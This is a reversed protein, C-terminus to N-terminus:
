PKQLNLSALADSLRKCELLLTEVKKVDKEKEALHLQHLTKSLLDRLFEEKFRQLSDLFAAPARETKEHTVESELILDDKLSELTAAIKKFYGEGAIEDVKKEIELPDVSPVSLSRQWFYLAFISRGPSLDKKQPTPGRETPASNRDNSLNKSAAHMKKALARVDEWIMTERLTTKQGILSVFHSQEMTSELQVIFPLVKELVEKTMARADLKQRMIYNVTFEIIHVSSDLIEKWKDPNHLIFDAPDEGVPLEAVRVEIGTALALEASRFAAKVGAGDPDFALILTKALKKVRDLHAQTLATGSVALTNAFGAQHSMIIDMQGEVLIATDSDRLAQKARHFGYLMESKSFLVTEPSNLYKASKGDDQFIRGSFAIARGSSDFLPFMIRGRFRDYFHGDSNKVNEGPHDNDADTSDKRKILGVKEMDQESFNKGALYVSVSRWEDPAFGIRWEKITEKTLGRKLLYEVVSKYKGEANEYLTKQFFITASELCRFLRERETRAEPHEKTIEVGARQALIRLAGMFDLGEFEQVFSFIDGKMGCGFCYYTNRAPSLFFSPTKENHFPCRAKYNGGAKELKIYSGVVDAISLREKIQEVHTSM